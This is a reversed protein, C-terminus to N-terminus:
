VQIARNEDLNTKIGIKIIIYELYRVEKAFFINKSNM